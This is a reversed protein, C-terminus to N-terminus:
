DYGLSPIAEASFTQIAEACFLSSYDLDRDLGFLNPAFLDELNPFEFLTDLTSPPPHQQAMEMSGIALPDPQEMEMSAFLDGPPYPSPAPNYSPHSPTSEYSPHSAPRVHPSRPAPPPLVPSVPLAYTLSSEHLFDIIGTSLPRIPTPSRIWAEEHPSHTTTYLALGSGQPCSASRQPAQRRHLQSRIPGLPSPAPSPTYRGGMAHAPSVCPINRQACNMCPRTSDGDTVTSCKIKSERCSCCAVPTPPTAGSYDLSLYECKLGKLSCRTCPRWTGDLITTALCRIKRKRCQTCAVFARHPRMIRKSPGTSTPHNIDSSISSGESCEGQTESM